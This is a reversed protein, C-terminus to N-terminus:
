VIIKQNFKTWLYEPPFFAMHNINTNIHTLGFPTLCVLALLQTKRHKNMRKEERERERM